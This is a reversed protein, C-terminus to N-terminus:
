KSYGPNERVILISDGYVSGDGALHEGAADTFLNYIGFFSYSGTRGSWPVSITMTRVQGVAFANWDQPLDVQYHFRTRWPTGMTGWSFDVRARYGKVERASNNKCTFRVEITKQDTTIKSPAEISLRVAWLDRRMFKVKYRNLSNKWGGSCKTRVGWPTQYTLFETSDPALLNFRYEHVDEEGVFLGEGWGDGDLITVKETVPPIGLEGLQSATLTVPVTGLEHDRYYVKTGAAEADIVIGGPPAENKHNGSPPDSRKCASIAATALLIALLKHRTAM